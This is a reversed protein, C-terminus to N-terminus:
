LTILLMLYCETVSLYSGIYTNQIYLIYSTYGKIGWFGTCFPLLLYLFLQYTYGRLVSTVGLEALEYALSRMVQNVAAKTSRYAIRGGSQNATLSGLRSSITCIRKGESRTVQPTFAQAIRLPAMTNAAFAAAWGDFDMERASQREPGSVAANNVLLDIGVDIAAGAEIVIEVSIAITRWIPAVVARGYKIGSM